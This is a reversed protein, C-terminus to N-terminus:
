SHGLGGGPGAPGQPGSGDVRSSSVASSPGMRADVEQMLMDLDFPKEVLDINHEELEGALAHLIRTNSTCVGLPIDMAEHDHQFYQRFWGDPDEGGIGPDVLILDVEDAAIDGPDLPTESTVTVQYGEEELVERVIKGVEAAGEVVRVYLQPRVTM